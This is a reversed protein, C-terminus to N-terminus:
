MLIIYVMGNTLDVTDVSLLSKKNHQESTAWCISIFNNWIGTDIQVLILWMTAVDPGSIHTGAIDSHLSGQAQKLLSRQLHGHSSAM